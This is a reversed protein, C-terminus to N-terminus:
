QKVGRAQCLAYNWTNDEKKDNLSTNEEPTKEFTIHFVDDM